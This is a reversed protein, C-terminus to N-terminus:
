KINSESDPLPLVFNEETPLIPTKKASSGTGSYRLVQRNLRKFMFFVQGEGLLERQVDNLIMNILGNKDLSSLDVTVGRGKKVTEVYDQAEALNKDCIAEAAIYYVESMRIMPIMPNGWRGNSSKEEQKHYKLTRYGHYKKEFQYLLRYDDNQENGFIDKVKETHWCLYSQNYEAQEESSYNIELEWDILETTYLTFIIDDYFKINGNTSINYVDTFDFFGEDKQLKIIKM